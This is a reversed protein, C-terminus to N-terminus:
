FNKYSKNDYKLVKVHMGILMLYKLIESLYYFREGKKDVYLYHTDAYSLFNLCFEKKSNFWFLFEKETYVVNDIQIRKKRLCKLLMMVKVM